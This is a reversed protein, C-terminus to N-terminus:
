KELEMNYRLYRDQGEEGAFFQGGIIGGDHCYMDLPVYSKDYLRGSETYHEHVKCIGGNSIEIDDMNLIEDLTPRRDRKM